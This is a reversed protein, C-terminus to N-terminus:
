CSFNLILLVAINRRAPFHLSHPPLVKLTDVQAVAGAISAPDVSSVASSLTQSVAPPYRRLFEAVM